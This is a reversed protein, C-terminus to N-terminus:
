SSPALIETLIKFEVTFAVDNGDTPQPDTVAGALGTIVSGNLYEIQVDMSARGQYYSLPVALSRVVNLKITANKMTRKVRGASLGQLKYPVSDIEPLADVAM